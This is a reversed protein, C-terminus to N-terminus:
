SPGLGANRRVVNGCAGNAADDQVVPRTLEERQVVLRHHQVQPAAEVTPHEPEVRARADFPIVDVVGVDDRQHSVQKWGTLVVM